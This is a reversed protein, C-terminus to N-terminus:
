QASASTTHRMRHRCIQVHKAQPWVDLTLARNSPKLLCREECLACIAETMETIRSELESRKQQLGTKTDRVSMYQLAVRSLENDEQIDVDDYHLRWKYIRISSDAISRHVTIRRDVVHAHNVNRVVMAKSLAMEVKKYTLKNDKIQNMLQQHSDKAEIFDGILKEM